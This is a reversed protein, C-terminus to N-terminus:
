LMWSSLSVEINESKETHPLNHLRKCRSVEEIARGNLVLIKVGNGLVPINPCYALMLHVLKGQLASM